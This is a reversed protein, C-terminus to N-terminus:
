LKTKISLSYLTGPSYYYKNPFKNIDGGPIDFRLQEYGGTIISQNLLNNVGLFFQLYYASGDKFKKIRCSYGASFDLIFANPLSSPRAIQEADLHIPLNQAADYTRRIPNFSLWQNGMYSSSLNLFLNSNSRYALGNYIALHPLGTIPFQDIYLVGKESIYPENDAMVSYNPRNHYVYKGVSMAANFTVGGFLTYAMSWELGMMQTGINSINYNVLNRYGDHYFSMVDMANNIRIWYANATIKLKPANLIYGAEVMFAWENSIDLQKLSNIRPSIYLDNVLPPKSSFATRFYYYNRGNLKYTIGMKIQGNNFYNPESLGFSNQPFVGNRYKGERQYYTSTYEIAANLDFKPMTYVAQSMILWQSLHMAYHYGFSDGVRIIQNPHNLDNQIATSNPLNDEAFQNWNISYKAGLLDNIRKFYTYVEKRYQGQFSILLRNNLQIRYRTNLAIKKNREVRDELLYRARKDSSSNQNIWYLHDWNIQLQSPNLQIQSLVDQALLSDTFFSPLYRYYDPRPDAANYWDLATTYKEGSSLLLTSIQKIKEHLNYEHSFLIMPQHNFQWNANRIKNAQLGWGPQYQKSAALGALEETIAATRTNMQSNGLLVLSFLHNRLRKDISLFYSFGKFENAKLQGGVGQKYAISSAFSWGNKSESWVKTFAIRQHYNRNSLNLTVTTQPFLKSANLQMFVANGLAGFQFENDKLGTAYQNNSTVENLGGWNAWPINGDSLQNMSIEHISQSFYRNSLGKMRFRRISFSFGTLASFLDKGSQLLSPIFPVEEDGETLTSENTYQDQFYKWGDKDLNSDVWQNKSKLLIPKTPLQAFAAAQILGFFFFLIRM